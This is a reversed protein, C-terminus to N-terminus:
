LNARTGRNGGTFAIDNPDYLNLNSYNAQYSLMGARMGFSFTSNSFNLKYAFSANAETTAVNGLRDNILLIGTGVKNDVLSTHASAYFTQPHGEYGTWQTRYGAMANLNNTLGAYAPNILLPNLMY